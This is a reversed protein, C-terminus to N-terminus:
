QVQQSVAGGFGSEGVHGGEVLSPLVGFNGRRVHGEAGQHQMVDQFGRREHPFQFLAGSLADHYVLHDLRRARQYNREVLAHVAHSGRRQRADGFQQVEQPRHVYEGVHRHESGSAGTSSLSRSETKSRRRRIIPTRSSSSAFSLVGAAAASSNSSSVASPMATRPTFGRRWAMMEHRGVCVGYDGGAGSRGDAIISLSSEGRALYNRYDGSRGDAIIRRWGAWVQVWAASAPAILCGGHLGFEDLYAVGPSDADGLGEYLAGAESVSTLRRAVSDPM